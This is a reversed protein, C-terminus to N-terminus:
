NTPDACGEDIFGAVMYAANLYHPIKGNLESTNVSKSRRRLLTLSLGPGPCCSVGLTKVGASIAWVSWGLVSVGVTSGAPFM